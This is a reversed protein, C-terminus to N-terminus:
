SPLGQDPAPLDLLQRLDQMAQVPSRFVIGQLGARKAAEINEPVDDVFVAEGPQVGLKEIVCAYIQPDPKALGVDCSFVVVDFIDLVKYHDRLLTRAGSWANSLLATTIRPRLGDLFHILDFDVSDGRWFEDEFEALEAPTLQFDEAVHAWVARDSIKGITGQFATESGFVRQYLEATPIGFKAALKERPTQDETRLIVGGMDFIVAKISHNLDLEGDRRDPIFCVFYIM